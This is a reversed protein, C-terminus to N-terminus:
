EAPTMYFHGISVPYSYQISTVSSLYNGHDDKQKKDDSGKAKFCVIGKTSTKENVGM